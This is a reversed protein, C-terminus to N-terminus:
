WNTNHIIFDDMGMDEEEMRLSSDGTPDNWSWLQESLYSPSIKPKKGTFLDIAEFAM